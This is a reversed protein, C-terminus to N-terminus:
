RMILKVHVNFEDFRLEKLHGEMSSVGSLRVQRAEGSEISYVVRPYDDLRQSGYLISIHTHHFSRLLSCNIM